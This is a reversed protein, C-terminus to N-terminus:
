VPNVICPKEPQAKKLDRLFRDILEQLTDGPATRMVEDDPLSDRGDPLIDEAQANPGSITMSASLAFAWQSTKM